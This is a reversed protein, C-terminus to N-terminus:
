RLGERLFEEIAARSEPAVISDVAQGNRYLVLTPIVEIGERRALAPEKDTNVKVATLTEAWSEALRDYLPELRRCYGCWPASYAVLVPRDQGTLDAFQTKNIQSAAM